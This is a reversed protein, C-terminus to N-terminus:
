LFSVAIADSFNSTISGAVLDRHWAQFSWTEGTAASAFGNPQPIQTLDVTLDRLGDANTFGAQGPLLFRGVSGGLCITGASGGAMPVSAQTQSALFLTLVNPRLDRAVLRLSNSAAVDSGVAAIRGVRGTSNPVAAACFRSGVEPVARGAYWRLRGDDETISVLDVDGDQDLDAALLARPKLLEEDVREPAAYIGTSTATFWEVRDELAISPRQTAVALHSGGGPAPIAEMARGRASTNAAVFPASFTGNGNGLVALVQRGLFLYWVADLAGDGNIDAVRLNQGESAAPALTVPNDFTQGGLGRYWLVVRSGSTIQILTVDLTGDANMDAIEFDVLADLQGLYVQSTAFVGPSTQEYWLIQRANPHVALVDLDGDGDVDALSPRDNYSTSTSGIQTSSMSGTHLNQFWHLGGSQTSLVGDVRGDGDIDGTTLFRGGAPVGEIPAPREFRGPGVNVAVLTPSFRASTLVDLDGDGDVDVAALDKFAFYPDTFLIAQSDFALDGSGAEQGLYLEAQHGEGETTNRIAFLDEYGDGNWDDIVLDIFPWTEGAQTWSSRVQFGFADGTNELWSFSGQGGANTAILLDIDGDGDMDLQEMRRIGPGGVPVEVRPRFSNGNRNRYLYLFDLAAFSAFVDQDGDGDFDYAEIDEPPVNEHAEGIIVSPGFVGPSVQPAYGIDSLDVRVVVDGLGNNTLDALAVTSETAFPATPNARVFTFDGSGGGGGSPGQFAVYAESFSPAIFSSIVADDDGDGDADVVELKSVGQGTAGGPIAVTSVVELGGGPVPRLTSLLNSPSSQEVVLLGRPGGDAPDFLHISAAQDIPVDIPRAVAMRNDGLNEQWYMGGAFLGVLIVDQDGDDDLDFLALGTPDVVRASIAKAPEFPPTQRADAVAILLASALFALSRHTM